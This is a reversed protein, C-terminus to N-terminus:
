PFHSEDPQIFLLPRWSIYEPQKIRIRIFRVARIQFFCRIIGNDRLSSSWQSTLADNPFLLVFTATALSSRHKNPYTYLSPSLFLLLLFCYCYCHFYYNRVMTYMIKGWTCLKVGRLSPSWQHGTIPDSPFLPVFTATALSSRQKNPYTYLSPSLLLLLMFCYCCYCYCHFYYNRVMKYINKGWLTTWKKTAWHRDIPKRSSDRSISGNQAMSGLM